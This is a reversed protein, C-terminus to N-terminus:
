SKMNTIFVVKSVNYIDALYYAIDFLIFKFYYKMIKDLGYGIESLFVKLRQSVCLAHPARNNNQQTQFSM